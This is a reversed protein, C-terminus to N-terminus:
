AARGALMKDACQPCYHRVEYPNSVFVWGAESSSPRHIRAAPATSATLPLRLVEGCDASDCLIQKLRNDLSM